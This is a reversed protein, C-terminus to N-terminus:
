VNENHKMCITSLCKIPNDQLRELSFRKSFACELNAWTTHGIGDMDIFWDVALGVLALPFLRLLYTSAEENNTKCALKYCMIYMTNEKTTPLYIEVIEWGIIEQNTTM